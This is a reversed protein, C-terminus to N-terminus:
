PYPYRTFRFLRGQHQNVIGIAMARDCELGSDRQGRLVRHIGIEASLFGSGVWVIVPICAWYWVLFAGMAVATSLLCLIATSRLLPPRLGIREGPEAFKQTYFLNVGWILSLMSLAGVALKLSVVIALLIAVGVHLLPIVYTGLEGIFLYRTMIKDRQDDSLAFVAKNNSARVGFFLKATMDAVPESLLPAAHLGALATVVILWVILIASM